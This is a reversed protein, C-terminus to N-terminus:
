KLGMKDIYLQLNKNLKFNLNINDKAIEMSLFDVWM